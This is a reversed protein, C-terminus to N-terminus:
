DGSLEMQTLTWTEAEGKEGDVLDERDRRGGRIQQIIKKFANEHLRRWQQTGSCGLCLM